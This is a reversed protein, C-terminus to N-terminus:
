RATAGNGDDGQAKMCFINNECDFLMVVQDMAMDNDITFNPDIIKHQYIVSAAKKIKTAFKSKTTQAIQNRHRQKLSNIKDEFKSFDFYNKLFKIEDDTFTIERHRTKSLQKIERTFTEVVFDNADFM